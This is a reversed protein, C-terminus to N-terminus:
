LSHIRKELELINFSGVRYYKVSDMLNRIMFIGLGGIQRNEVDATLDPTEITTPDFYTGNDYLRFILTASRSSYNATLRILGSEEAPYAYNVANVWAEEIALQIQDSLEPEIKYEESLKEMFTDLLRLSEISNMFSIEGTKKYDSKMRISMLTLDDSQEYGATFGTVAKELETVITDSPKDALSYSAYLLRPETFQEKNQNEAETIGDTYFIISAGTPLQINEDRYEFDEMIGVPINKYEPEMYCPYDTIVLPPNHGANCFYLLGTNPDLTGAVLTVFTCTDNAKILEDNLRSVVEAMSDCRSAISRFLTVTVAMFLSAPVGKGAVDGIVFVLKGNKEFLDYFDGGVQRAPKLLCAIDLRDPIVRCDHPLLGTQIKKAISLESDIKERDRADKEIRKMQRQLSDQMASFAASLKGMEDKTGVEPIKEDFNGAAIRKSAQTLKVLPKTSYVVIMRIAMVLIVMGILLLLGTIITVSGLEKVISNYNIVCCVSWDTSEIPAYVALLNKNGYTFHSAGKHQHTMDDAIGALQRCNIERARGYITKHTVFSTDPHALYRGSQDIIFGFSDDLPKMRAIESVMRTVPVDATLFGFIEGQRNKLPFSYTTMVAEGAGRDFYPESWCPTGKDVANRFWPMTEYAYDKRDLNIQKLQGDNDKVIYEMRSFNRDFGERGQVLAVSGGMLLSDKDVMETLLATVAQPNKLSEEVLTAMISVRGEVENFEADLRDSLDEVLASTYLIVQREQREAGYKYFIAAIGFFIVVTISLIYISLRNALIM